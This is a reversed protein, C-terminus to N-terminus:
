SRRVRVDDDHGHLALGFENDARAEERGAAPRRADAAPAGARAAHVARPGRRRGGQHGVPSAGGHARSLAKTVARHLDAYNGVLSLDFPPVADRALSGDDLKQVLQAYLVGESVSFLTNIFSFRRDRLDIVFRGYLSDVEGADLRRDGHMARRVFGHRDIKLFNGRERDIVLGRCALDPDDFNLGDVPFGLRALVAKTCEYALLEWERWKYHVITYDMDYGIVKIGRLNLSRSCFVRSEAAAPAASTSRLSRLTEELDAPACDAPAELDSWRSEGFYDVSRNPRSREADLFDPEDPTRLLELFDVTRTSLPAAEVFEEDAAPEM